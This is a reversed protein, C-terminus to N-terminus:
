GRAGVNLLLTDTRGDMGTARWRVAVPASVASLWVRVWPADAGYELLYDLGLAVIGEALVLTDPRLDVSASPPRLEVLVRKDAALWLRVGRLARSEGVRIRSRFEVEDAEGGDATLTTGRFGTPPATEVDVNAFARVLWLRRNGARDAARVAEQARRAADTVNAILAHALLVVLSTLFLAVLLEVLTFGSVNPWRESRM